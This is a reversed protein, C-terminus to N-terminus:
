GEDGGRDRYETQKGPYKDWGLIVWKNRTSVRQEGEAGPVFCLRSKPPM